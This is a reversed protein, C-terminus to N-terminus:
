INKGGNMIKLAFAKAGEVAEPTQFSAKNDLDRVAYM